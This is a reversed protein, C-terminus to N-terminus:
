MHNDFIWKCILFADKGIKNNKLKEELEDLTLWYYKKSEGEGPSIKETKCKVIYELDIHCHKGIVNHVNINFPLLISNQEDTIPHPSEVVEYDKPELGAEERLERELAEEPQEDLEIHGGFQLLKKYKLHYHMCLKKETPHILFASVTFDYLENIHGM